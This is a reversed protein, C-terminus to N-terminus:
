KKAPEPAPKAAKDTQALILKAAEDASPTTAVTKGAEHTDAAAQNVHKGYSCGFDGALAAGSFFGAALLAIGLAMLKKM